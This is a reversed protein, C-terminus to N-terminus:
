SLVKREKPKINLAHDIRKIAIAQFVALVGFLITSSDYIQQSIEQYDEAGTGFFGMIMNQYFFTGYTKTVLILLTTIILTINVFGGYPNKISITIAIFFTILGFVFSSGAMLMVNGSPAGQYQNFINNMMMTYFLLTFVAFVSLASLERQGKFGVILMIFFGSKLIFSLIYTFRMYFWFGSATEIAGSQTYAYQLLFSITIELVFFVVVLISLLNSKKM